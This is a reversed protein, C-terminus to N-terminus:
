NYVVTASLQPSGAEHLDDDGLRREAAALHGGFYIAKGQMM